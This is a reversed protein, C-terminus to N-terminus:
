VWISFCYDNRRKSDKYSIPYLTLLSVIRPFKFVLNFPSQINKKEHFDIYVYTNHLVYPIKRCVSIVNTETGM